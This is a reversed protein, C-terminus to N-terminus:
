QMCLCIYPSLLASLVMQSLYSLSCHSHVHVFYTRQMTTITLLLKLLTIEGYDLALLLHIHHITLTTFAM